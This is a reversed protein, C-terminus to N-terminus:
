FMSSVWGKPHKIIGDCPQDGSCCEPQPDHQIEDDGDLSVVCTAIMDERQRLEAFFFRPDAAQQMQTSAPRPRAFFNVHGYFAYGGDIYSSFTASVLDYKVENAPDDNYHRLACEALYESQRQQWGCPTTPFIAM